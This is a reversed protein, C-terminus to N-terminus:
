FLLLFLAISLAAGSLFSVTMNKKVLVENLRKIEEEQKINLKVSKDYRFACTDLLTQTSKNIVNLQKNISDKSQIISDKYLSQKLCIDKSNKETILHEMQSRNMGFITIGNIKSLFEPKLTNTPLKQSYGIFPAIM